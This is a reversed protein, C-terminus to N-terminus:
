DGSEHQHVIQWRNDFQQLLWTLEHLQQEPGSSLRARGTVLVTGDELQRFQLDSFEIESPNQSAKNRKCEDMVASWGRIVKGGSILTLLDSNWYTQMYAAVDGRNWAAQQEGLLEAIADKLSPEVKDSLEALSPDPVNDDETMAQEAQARNQEVLLRAVVEAERASAVMMAQRATVQRLYVFTMGAGVVLLLLVVVLLLTLIIVNSSSTEQSDRM